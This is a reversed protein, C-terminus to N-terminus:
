KNPDFGSIAKMANCSSIDLADSGEIMYPGSSIM